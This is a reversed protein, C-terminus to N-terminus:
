GTSRSLRSTRRPRPEAVSTAVLVDHRPRGQVARDGDLDGLRRLLRRAAARVVEGDVTCRDVAGPYLALHDLIDAYAPTPTPYFWAAREAVVPRDPDGGVVDLYAAQGKWECFSGGGAPRLAGDAFGAAAPLVDAPPQDGAGAAAPRHPRRGPRRAGGRRRRRRRELRPPRPYDWVSEQGPGPADPVPRRTPGLLRPARHVAQPRDPVPTDRPASRRRSASQVLARPSEFTIRERRDAADRLRSRLRGTRGPPRARPHAGDRARGRASPGRHNSSPEGIWCTCPSADINTPPIRASSSCDRCGSAIAPTISWEPKSPSGQPRSCRM